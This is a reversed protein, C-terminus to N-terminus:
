EALAGGILRNAQYFVVPQGPAVAWADDSLTVVLHKDDIISISSAEKPNLGWGRINTTINDSLIDNLDVFTYDSVAISRTRLSPKNGAVISNTELCMSKVYLSPMGESLFLDKKQGVTYFPVGRHTGIREGKEDFVFGEGPISDLDPHYKRLFDVYSANELFCVGMSEKKHAVRGFGAKSAIERVQTKTYEGLPTIARALVEQSLEWLFYSQDKNTDVGRYIYFKNDQEVINIYHGTAIKDISLEDAKQKLLDFKIHNNCFSCPSPTRAKLYDAVFPKVVKREFLSHAKVVHHELGIELALKRAEDIFSSDHMDWLDLTVAVPEYGMQRLLLACVFSDTGGSFGLVIKEKCM